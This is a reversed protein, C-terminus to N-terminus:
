WATATSPMCNRLRPTTILRTYITATLWLHMTHLRNMSGPRTLNEQGKTTTPRGSMIAHLTRLLAEWPKSM